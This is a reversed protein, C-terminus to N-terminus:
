ESIYWRGGIIVVSSPLTFKAMEEEYLHSEERPNPSQYGCGENGMGWDLGELIDGNGDILKQYEVPHPTEMCQLIDMKYGPRTHDMWDGFPEEYLGNHHREEEHGCRVCKNGYAM